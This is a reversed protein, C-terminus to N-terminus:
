RGLTERSPSPAQPILPIPRPVPLDPSHPKSHQGAGGTRVPLALMLVMSDPDKSWAELTPGPSRSHHHLHAQALDSGTPSGLTEFGISAPGIRRIMQRIRWTAAHLTCPPTKVRARCGVDM